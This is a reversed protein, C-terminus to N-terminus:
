RGSRVDEELADLETGARLREAYPAVGPRKALAEVDPRGGRRLEKVLWLAAERGAVAPAEEAYRQLSLFTWPDGRFTKLKQKDAHYSLPGLFAGKEWAFHANDGDLNRAAYHLGHMSAPLPTRAAIRELREKLARAAPKLRPADLRWREESACAAEFEKLLSLLDAAGADIEDLAPPLGDIWDSGWAAGRFSWERVPHKGKMAGLIEPGQHQEELTARLVFLGPLRWRLDLEFRGRLIQVLSGDLMEFRPALRRGDYTEEERQTTTMLVFRDPLDAGGELHLLPAKARPSPLRARLRLTGDPVLSTVVAWAPEQAAPRVDAPTSPPPAEPPRLLSALTIGVFLAAAAVLPWPRVPRAPGLAGLFRSKAAATRPPLAAARVLHGLDDSM